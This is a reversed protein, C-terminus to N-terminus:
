SWLAGGSSSSGPKMVVGMIEYTIARRDWDEQENGSETPRPGAVEEFRKTREAKDALAERDIRAMTEESVKTGPPYRWPHWFVDEDAPPKPSEKGGGVTEIGAM